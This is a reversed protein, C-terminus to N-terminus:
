PCRFGQCEGCGDLTAKIKCASTSCAFFGKIGGPCDSDGNPCEITCIIDGKSLPCDTCKNGCPDSKSKAKKVTYSCRDPAPGGLHLTINDLGEAGGATDFVNIRAIADSDSIVGMFNTGGVDASFTQSGLLVDNADFVCVDVTNGGLLALTNAGVAGVPDQTTLIMDWSDVFFNAVVIDSAAGQFGASAIALGTVGRPNASSACDADLNSQIAMGDCGELGNPYNTNPTGSELPDDVGAVGNGPLTSEEFDELCIQAGAASEFAAKDTFFMLSSRTSGDDRPVTPQVLAPAAPAAQIVADNSVDSIKQVQQAQAVAFLGLVTCM